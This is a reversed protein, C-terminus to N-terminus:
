TASNMDVIHIPTKENVVPQRQSSLIFSSVIWKDSSIPVCSTHPHTWAAPFLSITGATAKIKLDHLPFFTEGGREITNLYM